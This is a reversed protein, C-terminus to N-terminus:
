RVVIAVKQWFYEIHQMVNLYEDLLSPKVIYANANAQYAQRLDAAATSSSFIIVPITKLADDAKVERLTELGGKRPMNLDLLIVDPRPMNALHLFEMAEVGDNATYFQVKGSEELAERALDRDGPNDDVFLMHMVPNM